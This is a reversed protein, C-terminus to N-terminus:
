GPGTGPECPRWLPVFEGHAWPSARFRHPAPGATLFAPPLTSGVGSAVDCPVPVGPRRPAPTEEPRHGGRPARPHKGGPARADPRNTVCAPGDAVPAATEPAPTVQQPPSPRIETWLLPAGFAAAPPEGGAPVALSREAGEVGEAVAPVPETPRLVPALPTAVPSVARAIPELSGLVDGVPALVAAATQRVPSLLAEAARAVATVGKRVPSVVTEATRAVPEVSGALPEVVAGAGKAVPSVVTRAVPAVSGALPGMVAGAGKRVPSVVAEATRAVPEASGALPEVVAGVGKGVPSVVTRAVPAVSGTVPRAAAAASKSVPAVAARVVQGAALALGDEATARHSVPVPGVGDAPAAVVVPDGARTAAGAHASTLWSVLWLGAVAGALVLLRRATVSAGGVKRARTM